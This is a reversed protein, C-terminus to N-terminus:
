DPGKEEYGTPMNWTELCTSQLKEKGHTQSELQRHMTTTLSRMEVLSVILNYYM